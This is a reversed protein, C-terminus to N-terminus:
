NRLRGEGGAEESCPLPLPILPELYFASAIIGEAKSVIAIVELGEDCGRTGLDGEKGEPRRFIM